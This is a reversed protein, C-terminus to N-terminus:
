SSATSGYRRQHASGPTSASGAESWASITPLARERAFELLPVGVDVDSDAPARDVRQGTPADPRQPVRDGSAVDIADHKDDVLRAGGRLAPQRGLGSEDRLWAAGGQDRREKRGAIVQWRAADGYRHGCHGCYRRGPRGRPPRETM